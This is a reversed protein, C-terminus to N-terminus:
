ERRRDSGPRSSSGAGRPRFGNPSEPCRPSTPRGRPTASAGKEQDRWALHLLSDLSGAVDDIAEGPDGVGAFREPVTLITFAAPDADPVEDWRLPTSVRVYPTPRVSYASAV